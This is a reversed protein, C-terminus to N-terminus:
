CYHKLFLSIGWLLNQCNAQASLAWINPLVLAMVVHSWGPHWRALTKPLAETETEENTLYLYYIFETPFHSGSQVQLSKELDLNIERLKQQRVVWADKDSISGEFEQKRSFPWLRLPQCNTIVKPNTEAKEFWSGWPRGSRLELWAKLVSGERIKVSCINIYLM